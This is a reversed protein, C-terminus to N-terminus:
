GGFEWLLFLEKYDQQGRILEQIGVNGAEKQLGFERRSDHRCPRM